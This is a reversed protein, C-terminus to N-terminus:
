EDDQGQKLDLFDKLGGETFPYFKDPTSYEKNRGSVAYKNSEVCVEAYWVAPEDTVRHIGRCAIYGYCHVYGGENDILEHLRKNGRPLYGVHEEDERYIAIAYEDAENCFESHAYGEFKGLYTFDLDRYKMGVMPFKRYGKRPTLGICKEGVYYGQEVSMYEPPYESYDYPDIEENKSTNLPSPDGGTCCAWVFLAVIGLIIIWLM